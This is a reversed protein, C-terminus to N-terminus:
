KLLVHTSKFSWDLLISVSTESPESSANPYPDHIVNTGSCACACKRASPTIMKIMIVNPFHSSARELPEAASESSPSMSRAGLRTVAMRALPRSISISWSSSLTPMINRTLGPSAMAVSPSTTSPEALTSSDISVPSDRGVRFDAFAFTIPPVRFKSPVKIMRAVFTPVSVIRCFIM